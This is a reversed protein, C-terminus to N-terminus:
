KKLYFNTCKEEKNEDKEIMYTKGGDKSEIMANLMSVNQRDGKIM